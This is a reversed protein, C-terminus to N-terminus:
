SAHKRCPPELSIRWSCSCLLRSNGPPYICLKLNKEPKTNRDIVHQISKFKEILNKMINYKWNTKSECRHTGNGDTPKGDLPILSSLLSSTVGGDYKISCGGRATKM